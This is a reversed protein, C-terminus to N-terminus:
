KKSNKQDRNNKPKLNKSIDSETVCICSKGEIPTGKDLDLHLFEEVNDLEREDRKMRRFLWYWSGLFVIIALAGFFSLIMVWSQTDKLQYRLYGWVGDASKGSAVLDECQKKYGNLYGFVKFNSNVQAAKNFDALAERCRSKKLRSLGLLFNKSFVGTEYNPLLVGSVGNKAVIEKAIDIPIAFAFSDGDQKTLESTIFTILGIVKGEEDLLPGGSSGNSIKADTQFIKFDKNASDKTAGITGQSFTPELIDKESIEATSPYGFIYVKRGTSISSSTGLEIAPLNQQDIKILAADRSDKLFNDNLSVITAPFGKDALEEMTEEKSSPNLVNITKEVNFKSESLIYDTIEEGFKAMEEQSKSESMEEADKESLKTYGENIAQYVYDYVLLNEITLSSVIHANTMIYGDPTVIVGTGTLYEDVPINEPQVGEKTKISFKTFDVDIEPIEANGKIHQVIKVVSPKTLDAVEKQTLASEDASVNAAILLSNALIVISFWIKYKKMKAKRLLVILSVIDLKEERLIDRNM